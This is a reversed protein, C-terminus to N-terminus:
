YIQRRLDFNIGLKDCFKLKDCENVQIFESWELDM